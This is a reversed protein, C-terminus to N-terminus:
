VAPNKRIHSRVVIAASETEAEIEREAAKSAYVEAEDFLLSM